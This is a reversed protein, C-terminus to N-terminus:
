AAPDCNEFLERPSLRGPLFDLKGNASVEANECPAIALQTLGRDQREGVGETQALDEAERFILLRNATRRQGVLVIIRTTAGV